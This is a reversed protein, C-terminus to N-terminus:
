GPPPSPAIEEASREWLSCELESLRRLPCDEAHDPCDLREGEPLKNGCAPCEEGWDRVVVYAAHAVDELLDIREPVTRYKPPVWDPRDSM